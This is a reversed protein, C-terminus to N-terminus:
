SGWDKTKQQFDPKAAFTLSLIPTIVRARGQTFENSAILTEAVHPAIPKRRM